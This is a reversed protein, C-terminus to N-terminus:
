LGKLRTKHPSVFLIMTLSRELYINNEICCRKLLQLLGDGNGLKTDLTKYDLVGLNVDEITTNEKPLVLLMRFDENKYPLELVEGLNEITAYNFNSKTTMGYKYDIELGKRVKFKMPKTVKKKFKTLWNAKFYIANVLVLRAHFSLM